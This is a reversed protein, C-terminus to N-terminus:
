KRVRVKIRIIVIFMIPPLWGHQQM